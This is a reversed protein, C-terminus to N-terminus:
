EGKLNVQLMLVDYCHISLRLANLESHNLYHLM